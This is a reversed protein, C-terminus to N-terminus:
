MPEWQFAVDKKTLETFANAMAVYSKIYKYYYNAFGIFVWVGHVDHPREWDCVVKLKTDM